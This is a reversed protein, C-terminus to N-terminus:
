DKLVEFDKVRYKPSPERSEGDVLSGEVKVIMGEKVDIMMHAGEVLTVSGGYRDDEDISAYRLRWEGNKRHYQLEGILYSYDGARRFEPKATIDAYSRRPAATEAPFPSEFPEPAPTSAKPEEQEEMAIQVPRTPLPEVTPAEPVPIEIAASEEPKPARYRENSIPKSIVPKSSTIPLQAPATRAAVPAPTCPVCTVCGPKGCIKCCPEACDHSKGGHKLVAKGGGPKGRHDYNPKACTSCNPQGCSAGPQADCYKDKKRGFLNLGSSEDYGWPPCPCPESDHGDRCHKCGALGLLVVASVGLWLRPSSIRLM